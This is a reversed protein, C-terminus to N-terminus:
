IAEEEEEQRGEEIKQSLKRNSHHFVTNGLASDFQSHQAGWWEPWGSEFSALELSCLGEAGNYTGSKRGRHM